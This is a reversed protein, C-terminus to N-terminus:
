TCTMAGFSCDCADDVQWTADEAPCGGEADPAPCVCLLVDGGACEAGDVGVDCPDGARPGCAALLLLLSLARM